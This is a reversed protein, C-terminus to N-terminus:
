NFFSIFLFLGVDDKDYGKEIITSTKSIPEDIGEILCWMGAPVHDVEIKYRGVAVWLRGVPLIRSDEEDQISYSEGLIKVNENSHLTGSVVRGFVHFGTVDFTPYNKTTHVYLVNNKNCEIIEQALPSELSGSYNQRVLNKTADLSSPIKNVVM